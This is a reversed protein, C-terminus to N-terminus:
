EPAPGSSEHESFETPLTLESYAGFSNETSQMILRAATAGMEEPSSSCCTIKPLSEECVRTFDFAVVSVDKGVKFGNQLLYDIAGRAM